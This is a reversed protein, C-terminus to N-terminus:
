RLGLIKKLQLANAVAYGEADNNFYIFVDKGEKQFKSIVKADAKLMKDSYCGRYLGTPGHRRLYIFNSTEPKVIALQPYDAFVLAMNNQRLLQYFDENCWSADRVEFAQRIKFAKNKLQGIFQSVKKFNFKFHPPFQWLVASLKEKLPESQRFLTELPEAVDKLKKIHTIFRSGKIVFHFNQPTRQYWGEFASKQPLRYFTVNLEVTDFFKSYHELWKGQPLHEPYFVGGGWHPYNYGSTGIFIKAM